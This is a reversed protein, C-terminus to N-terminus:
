SQSKVWEVTRRLGEALSVSPKWGFARRIKGNALTSHRIDGLRPPGYCPERQDNLVDTLAFFLENLTVASGTSVNFIQNDGGSLALLNARAVDEVYVYDRTDTGDGFITPMEGRCLRDTFITIVGSERSLSQRPGYVNAYRLITYPLGHLAQYIRLYEEGTKKTLGYPSLPILPHEESVPLEIPTGYVAASSALVIKKVAYKRCAELVQLLGNINVSADHLPDRISDPVGVQAAQHIVADFREKAFVPTLDSAVDQEIVKVDTPLNARSGASLNDLVVVEHGDALLQDVIHSGIFGAGGTVLM